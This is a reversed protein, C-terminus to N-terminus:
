LIPGGHRRNEGGVQGSEFGDVAQWLRMGHEILETLFGLDQGSAGVDHDLQQSALDGRGLEKVDPAYGLEGVVSHVLIADMETREDSM